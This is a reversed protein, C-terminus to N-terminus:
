NLWAMFDTKMPAPSNPASGEIGDFQAGLAIDAARVGHAPRVVFCRGVHRGRQQHVIQNVHESWVPRM